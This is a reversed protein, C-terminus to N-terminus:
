KEWCSVCLVIGLEGIRRTIDPGFELNCQGQYEYMYWFTILSGSIGIKKLKTLNNAILDIFLNLAKTFNPSGEEIILSWGIEPNDNSEGLILDVKEKKEIDCQILLRYFSSM